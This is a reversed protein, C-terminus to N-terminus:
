HSIVDLSNLNLGFSFVNVISAVPVDVIAICISESFLSHPIGNNESIGKKLLVVRETSEINIGFSITKVRGVKFLKM